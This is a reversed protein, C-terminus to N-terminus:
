LLAQHQFADIGKHQKGISLDGGLSLVSPRLSLSQGTGVGSVLFDLCPVTKVANDHVYTVAEHIINDNLYKSIECGYLKLANETDIFIQTLETRELSTFIEKDDKPRQDSPIIITIIASSFSCFFFLVFFSSPLIFLVCCVYWM